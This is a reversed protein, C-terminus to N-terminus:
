GQEAYWVQGQFCFETSEVFRHASHAAGLGQSVGLLDPQEPGRSSWWVSSMCRQVLVTCHMLRSCQAYIRVAEHIISMVVEIGVEPRVEVAIM